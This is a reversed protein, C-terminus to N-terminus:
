VEKETKIFIRDYDDHFQTESDFYFCMVLHSEETDFSNESTNDYAYISYKDIGTNDAYTLYGCYEVNGTAYYATVDGTDNIIFYATGKEGSMQWKGKTRAYVKTNEAAAISTEVDAISNTTYEAQSVSSENCGTTTVCLLLTPLIIFTKKM